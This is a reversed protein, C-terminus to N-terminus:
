QCQYVNGGVAVPFRGIGCWCLPGRIEGGRCVLQGAEGEQPAIAQPAAGQPIVAQPPPRQAAPPAQQPRIVATGPRPFVQPAPLIGLQPPRGADPQPAAASPVSVAVVTSQGCVDAIPWGNPDNLGTLCVFYGYTGPAQPTVTFALSTTQTDGLPPLGLSVVTATPFTGAARVVVSGPQGPWRGVGTFNTIDVTMPIPRNAPFTGTITRVQAKPVAVRWEGTPGNRVRITHGACSWRSDPPCLGVSVDVERERDRAGLTSPDPVTFTAIRTRTDGCQHREVHVTGLNNNGTRNLQARDSGLVARQGLFLPLVDSCNWNWDCDSVIEYRVQYTEGPRMVRDPPPTKAKVSYVQPGVDTWGRLSIKLAHCALTDVTLNQAHAPGPALPSGPSFLLGPMLLGATLVAAAARRLQRIDCVM